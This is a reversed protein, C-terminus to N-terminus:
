HLFHPPLLGFIITASYVKPVMSLYLYLFKNRHDHYKTSVLMYNFLVTNSSFHMLATISQCLVTLGRNINCLLNILGFFKPFMIYMILLRLKGSQLPCQVLPPAVVLIVSFLRLMDLHTVLKKIECLQEGRINKCM